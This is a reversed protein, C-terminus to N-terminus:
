YIDTNLFCMKNEQKPGSAQNLIMQVQAKYPSIVAVDSGEKVGPFLNTLERYLAIVLDVELQNTKSMSGEPKDEKGEVHYFAFPGLWPYRHWESKTSEM